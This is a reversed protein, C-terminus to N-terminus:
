PDHGLLSSWIHSLLVGSRPMVSSAIGITGDSTGSARGIVGTPRVGLGSGATGPGGVGPGNGSGPGPSGSSSGTRSGM